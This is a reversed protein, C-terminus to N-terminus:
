GEMAAELTHIFLLDFTTSALCVAEAKVLDGLVERPISLSLGHCMLCLQRERPVSLSFVYRVLVM